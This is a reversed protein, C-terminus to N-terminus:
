FLRMSHQSAYFYKDAFTLCIDAHTIVELRWIADVATFPNFCRTFFTASTRVHLSNQSAYHVLIINLHRLMSQAIRVFLSSAITSIM